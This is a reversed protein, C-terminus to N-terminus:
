NPTTSYDMYYNYYTSGNIVSLSISSNSYIKLLYHLLCFFFFLILILYTIFSPYLRVTSSSVPFFVWSPCSTHVSQVTQWCDVVWSHFLSDSYHPIHVPTPFSNASFGQNKTRGFGLFALLGFSRVTVTFLWAIRTNANKKKLHRILFNINRM